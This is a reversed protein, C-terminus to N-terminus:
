GNPGSWIAVIGRVTGTALLVFGVVTFLDGALPSAEIGSVDSGVLVLAFLGLAFMYVRSALAAAGCLMGLAFAIVLGQGSM